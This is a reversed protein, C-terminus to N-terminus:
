PGCRRAVQRSIEESTPPNEGLCLAHLMEHIVVNSAIGPEERSVRAFTTTCIVDAARVIAWAIGVWGRTTEV